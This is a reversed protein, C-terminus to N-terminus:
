DHHRRDGPTQGLDELPKRHASIIDVLENMTTFSKNDGASTGVIEVVGLLNKGQKDPRRYVRVVYTEM